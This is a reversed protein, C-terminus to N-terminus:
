LKPKQDSLQAIAAGNLRGDHLCSAVLAGAIGMRRLTMLDDGDRVGGAAYVRRTSAADRIQGLRQLDPGLGSGVRSLTMVIVTSPWTDPQSLLAAPGRFSDALFDLSLAIRQDGAYRRLPSPDALTESGIVLRGLDTSLWQGIGSEDHIGNDVWFTLHPFAGKLRILADQNSGRKEIADLDAVYVSTFPYVSLLGRSVDLPDSTTSLPTDIPRYANRQGMRAHVVVGGMLDIVPIVEM